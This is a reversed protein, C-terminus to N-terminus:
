RRTNTKPYLQPNDNVFGVPDMAAEFPPPVLHDPALFYKVPGTDGAKRIAGAFTGYFQSNTDLWTIIRIMEERSLSV